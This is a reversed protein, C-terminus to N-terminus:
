SAARAQFLVSTAESFCGRHRAWVDARAYAACEEATAFHGSAVAHAVTWARDSTMAATEGADAVVITLVGDATEAEFMAPSM